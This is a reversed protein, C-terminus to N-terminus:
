ASLEKRAKELENQMDRGLKLLANADHHLAERRILGLDGGLPDIGTKASEISRLVQALEHAAYDALRGLRAAYEEWTIPM